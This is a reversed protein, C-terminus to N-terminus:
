HSFYTYCILALEGIIREADPTPVGEVFVSLLFPQQAYVIAADGRVYALTGTKHAVVVHKPLLRPITLEGKNQKLIDLMEACLKPTAVQNRYIKELLVNMEQATAYNERGQKAALTDMMIRNLQSKALGLTHIRQNVTDRGLLKIFINTATNDSEVMMLRLLERYSVRSQDAYTQLVGSGGVKEAHNLTHIADLRFTGAKVREMVEIMIPLKIVSASPVREDARHTFTVNNTLSKTSLSVRVDPPLRRLYANLSDALPQAQIAITLSM